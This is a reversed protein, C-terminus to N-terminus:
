KKFSKKWFLRLAIYGFLTKWKKKVRTIEEAEERAGYLWILDAWKQDYLFEFHQWSDNWYVKIGTSYPFLKQFLESYNQPDRIIVKGERSYLYDHILSICFEDRDVICHAFCPSSNFDFEYWAPIDIYENQHDYDIWYRLDDKLRYRRRDLYEIYQGRNRVLDSYKIM